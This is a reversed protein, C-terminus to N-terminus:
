VVPTPYSFRPEMGPYPLLTEEEVSDLGATPGSVRRDLPTYRAPHSGPPERAHAMGENKMRSRPM